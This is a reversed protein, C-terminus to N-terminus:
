ICPTLRSSDFQPGGPESPRLRQRRAERIKLFESLKLPPGAENQLQRYVAREYQRLLDMRRKGPLVCEQFDLILPIEWDHFSNRTFQGRTLEGLLRKFRGLMLEAEIPDPLGM